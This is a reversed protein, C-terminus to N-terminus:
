NVLLKYNYNVKNQEIKVKTDMLRELKNLKVLIKDLVEIFYLIQVSPVQAYITSDTTIVCRM